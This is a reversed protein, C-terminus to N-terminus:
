NMAGRNPKGLDLRGVLLGMDKGIQHTASLLSAATVTASGDHKALFSAALSIGTLMAVKPDTEDYMDMADKIQSALDKM